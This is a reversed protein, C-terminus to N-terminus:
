LILMADGFSFFRYHNIIAEHYAQALPSTNWTTFKEQSNPHSTFASTLMLLTSKPLHFNTILAHTHRFKTPPYLFISTEGKFHHTIPPFPSPISELVRTATTGIALIPQHSNLASKIKKLATPKIIFKESHM